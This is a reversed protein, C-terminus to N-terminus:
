YEFPVGELAGRDIVPTQRHLRLNEWPPNLIVACEGPLQQGHVGRERALM